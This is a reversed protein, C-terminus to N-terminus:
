SWPSPSSYSALAVDIYPSSVAMGVGDQDSVRCPVWLPSFAASPLSAAKARDIEKGHGPYSIDRFWAEVALSCFASTLWGRVMAGRPVGM